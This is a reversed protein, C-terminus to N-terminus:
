RYIENVGNEFLIVSGPIVKDELKRMVEEQTNGVVLQTKKGGHGLFGSIIQATDPAEILGLYDVSKALQRGLQHHIKKSDPGLEVFGMTIIIRHTPQLQNILKLSATISDPNSNYGNDLILVNNQAFFPQHRRKIFPLTALQTIVKKSDIGLRKALWFVPLSNAAQHEGYLPIFVSQSQNPQSNISVQYETGARSVKVNSISYDSDPDMGYTQLKIKPFLKQNADAVLIKSSRKFYEILSAFNAAIIELSGFTALHQRGIPTLVGLDPQLFRCFDKVDGPKFEGFEVMFLKHRPKLQTLIVLSIGLPTNVSKPTMLCSLETKLSHYIIHKTSTKGYSGAIAVVKLGLLRFVLLKFMALSYIVLRALNEGPWILRVAVALSTAMPVFFLLSSLFDVVRLKVTWKEPELKVSEAQHQECWAAFRDLDYETQQLIYLLSNKKM